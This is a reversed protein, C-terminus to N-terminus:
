ESTEKSSAPAVAEPAAKNAYPIADFAAKERDDAGDIDFVGTAAIVLGIAGIGLLLGMPVFVLAEGQTENTYTFQPMVYLGIALVVLGVGFGIRLWRSM